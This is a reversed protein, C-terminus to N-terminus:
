PNCFSCFYIFIFPVFSHFFIILLLLFSYFIFSLLIPLLILALSLLRSTPKGEEQIQWHQLEFPLLTLTLQEMAECNKPFFVTLMSVNWPTLSRLPMRIIKDPTCLWVLIRELCRPHHSLNTFSRPANVVTTDISCHYVLLTADILFHSYPRSCHM